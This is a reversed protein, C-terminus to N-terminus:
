ARSHVAAPSSLSVRAGIRNVLATAIALCATAAPSPVNYVHMIRPTEEFEFDDVLVGDKRLAQARVGTGGQHLDSARLEPTLQQLAAVFAAKSLSRYYEKAASRWHTGAMKWFGTFVLSDCLDRFNIATKSYGERRFAFVANPGAEVTGDVRRTFHVGLFPFRPDPVPYILGSIMDRKEPAVDYYEGRFPVIRIDNRAGAKRAVYDSQLGACNVAYCASFDGVRTEVTTGDACERFGTVEADCVIKGGAQRILLALQQAVAKFSTIAVGPIHIAKIGNAAREIERIQSPELIRLGPIGNKQGRNFLEELYPLEEARTAVILKGIVQLPLRYERCFNLMQQSGTRCLAAKLSGPKYYIGSHIVGSNHSTQHLAVESEKELVTLTITPDRRLFELATALGVIGAGIVIVNKTPVTRPEIGHM